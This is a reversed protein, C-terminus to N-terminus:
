GTFVTSFNGLGIRSIDTLFCFTLNKWSNKRSNNTYFTNGSKAFYKGGFEIREVTSNLAEFTTQGDAETLRYPINHSLLLGEALQSLHFHCHCHLISKRRKGGGGKKVSNSSKKYFLWGSISKLPCEVFFAAKHCLFLFLKDWLKNIKGTYLKKELKKLSLTRTLSFCSVLYILENVYSGM